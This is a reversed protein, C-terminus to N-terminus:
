PQIPAFPVAADPNSVVAADGIAVVAPAAPQPASSRKTKPRAVAKITTAAPPTAVTTTTTPAAATVATVAPAVAAVTAPPGSSSTTAITPHAPVATTVVTAVAPTPPATVPRDSIARGAIGLSALGGALMGAVSALVPRRLLQRHLEQAERRTVRASQALQEVLAVDHLDLYDALVDLDHSRLEVPGDDPLMRMNRVLGMYTALVHENGQRPDVYATSGGVHLIGMARDIAFAQVRLVLAEGTVGCQAALATVDADNPRLEAAEWAAVVTSPRGVRGALEDTTVGMTNKVQIVLSALQSDTLSNTLLYNTGTM